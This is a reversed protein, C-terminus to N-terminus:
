RSDCPAPNYQQSQELEEIFGFSKMDTIREVYLIGDLHDCEHQVVRAHFGDVERDIKNGHQDTGSYRIRNPREVLGRMGPISLCGEWDTDTSSDLPEILPNILITEPVAIADPYRPNSDFGFIVLRKLIGIQPAALGVGDLHKMTDFMDEVITHIKKYDDETVPSSPMNLAPDGIRLVNKIAM